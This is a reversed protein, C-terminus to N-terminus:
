PGSEGAIIGLHGEEDLTGADGTHLWGDVLVRSTLDPDLYYGMFNSQSKILIERTPLLKIETGPLPKGVTEPKVEGERHVHIMGCTETLGYCQKINLGLSRFLKIIEQSIPHAGTYAARIRSCGIRHLLPGSILRSLLGNKLRLLLPVSENESELIAMHNATELTMDFLSRNWKRSGTMSTTIRMALDEWFETSGTIFTPGIDIFDEVLTEPGEPFNTTLGGCLAIGVGWVQEIIGAMSSMSVWNDEIGMPETEVWRSATNTFNGHSLMALKPTGTAGPTKLMVAMDEPKGDWLEKIFLDPQERDLDEGLELLQSYAVLWPDDGYFKLGTPDIYIIQKIHPLEQRHALLRHVQMQNQAFVYTAQVHDLENVLTEVPESAFLPLAVAGAAHTGLEGFLWEPGNDLIFGVTEGREIGLAMLGLATNKTYRFYARWDITQWIGCFKERIAIKRTGFREAQKYLIQPLTYQGMSSLTEPDVREIKHRFDNMHNM